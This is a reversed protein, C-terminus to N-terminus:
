QLNKLGCCILFIALLKQTRCEVVQVTFLLRRTWFWQSTGGRSMLYTIYHLIFFRSKSIMSDPDGVGVYLWHSNALYTQVRNGGEFNSVEYTGPLKRAVLPVAPFFVSLIGAEFCCPLSLLPLQRNCCNWILSQLHHGQFLTQGM